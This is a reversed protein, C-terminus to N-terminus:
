APIQFHGIARAYMGPSGRGPGTSEGKGWLAAGAWFCPGNRKRARVDQRSNLSEAGNPPIPSDVLEGELPKSVLVLIMSPLVSLLEQYTDISLHIIGMVM